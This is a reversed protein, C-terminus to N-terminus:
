MVNRKERFNQGDESVTKYFVANEEHNEQLTNLRFVKKRTIYIM